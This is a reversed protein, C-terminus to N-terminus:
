QGVNAKWGDEIARLWDAQLEPLAHAALETAPVVSPHRPLAAFAAQMDPPTRTIDIAPTAGWVAPDAKLLQAEASLLLNQLVMAAAKNPSNFPILLYSTNAITGSALGYSRTTDPFTGADVALGFQAPDYDFTFDVEGQAYLQNLAAITTPYTQGQRWLYPEIDNLIAWARPAVADFRAQDFPGLLAEPGGAAHTFVHRIFVAGNFDPPAPYTFRGPNARIWDLLAAMDPPPVPVAASDYALAFQARSWPVQCGDVPTGFDYAITPDAWDVLAANPLSDTYGCFALGGDKMTRFNEGNIWLLDVSGADLNGAQKEALVANVAIATDTLPVRNLTIGHDALLMPAIRDSIYANIPDSGGWLFFNVEDGRAADLTAQWDDAMAPTLTLALLALPKLM